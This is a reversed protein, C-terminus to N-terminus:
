LVAHSLARAIAQAVVEHGWPNLHGTDWGSNPFGQAPIGRRRLAALQERTTICSLRQEECAKRFKAETPTVTTAGVGLHVFTVRGGFAAQALALEEAVPYDRKVPSAKRIQAEARFPRWAAAMQLLGKYQLFGNQVAASEGRLPKMVFDFRGRHQVAPRVELTEGTRVFHTNTKSWASAEFDDDNVVVLTWSARQKEVVARGRYIHDPLGLAPAAANLFVADIGTKRLLREALFCFTQEDGVHLAATFSDGLVLIRRTGLTSIPLRIGDRWHSVANGERHWTKRGGEIPIFAYARAVGEVTVLALVFGICFRLLTKVLKAVRMAAADECLRM